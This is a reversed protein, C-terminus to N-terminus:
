TDDNQGQGGQFSGHKSFQLEGFIRMFNFEVIINISLHLHLHM